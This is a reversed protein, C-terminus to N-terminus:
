RQKQKKELIRVRAQREKSRLRKKQKTISMYTESVTETVEQQGQEPSLEHEVPTTLPQVAETGKLVTAEETLTMELDKVTETVQQGQRSSLDHEVPTTVPLIAKELVPQTEIKEFIVQEQQVVEIRKASPANTDFAVEAQTEIPKMECVAFKLEQVSLVSKAIPPSIPQESEDAENIDIGETLVFEINETVTKMDECVVLHLQQEINSMPMEKEENVPEVQVPTKTETEPDPQTQTQQGETLSKLQEEAHIETNVEPKHETKEDIDELTVLQAVTTAVTELILSVTDTEDITENEPDEPSVDLRPKSNRKLKLHKEKVVLNDAALVEPGAETLKVEQVSGESKIDLIQPRLDMEDKPIEVTDKPMKTDDDPGAETLQFVQISTESKIDPTQSRVDEEDKPIEVKDQLMSTDDDTVLPKM